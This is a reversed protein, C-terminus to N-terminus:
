DAGLGCALPQAGTVTSIWDAAIDIRVYHDVGRCSASGETLVGIALPRQGGLAMLPGGSDGNCAGRRLDGAVRVLDPRVELVQQVAFRRHGSIGNEDYGYGGIAAQSLFYSVPLPAPFRLIPGSAEIVLEVLALDLFPHRLLARARTQVVPQEADAGFRIELEEVQTDPLARVCHKATLFWGPTVRFGSCISPSRPGIAPIRLQGLADAEALASSGLSEDGNVLAQRGASIGCIGGADSQCGGGLAALVLAVGITSMFSAGNLM